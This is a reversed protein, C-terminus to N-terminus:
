PLEVASGAAAKGELTLAASNAGEIGVSRLLRAAVRM